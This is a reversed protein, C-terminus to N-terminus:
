VQHLSAEGLLTTDSTGVFAAPYKDVLYNRLDANADLADGDCWLKQDLATQM